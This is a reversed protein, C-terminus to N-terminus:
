ERRRRVFRGGGELDLLASPREVRFRACAPLRRGTAPLERKAHKPFPWLGNGEHSVPKVAKLVLIEDIMVAHEELEVTAQEQAGPHLDKLAWRFIACCHTAGMKYASDTPSLDKFRRNERQLHKTGASPQSISLHAAKAHPSPHTCEGAANGERDVYKVCRM